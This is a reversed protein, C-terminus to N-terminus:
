KSLLRCLLGHRVNLLNWEAAAPRSVLVGSHRVDVELRLDTAIITVSHKIAIRM